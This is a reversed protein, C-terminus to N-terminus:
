YMLASTQSKGTIVSCILNILEKNKPGKLAIRLFLVISVSSTIKWMRKWASHGEEDSMSIFYINTKRKTISDKITASRGDNKNNEGVYEYSKIM